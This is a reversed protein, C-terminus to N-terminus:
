LDNRGGAMLDNETLSLTFGRLRTRGGTGPLVTNDVPENCQNSRVAATVEAGVVHLPLDRLL